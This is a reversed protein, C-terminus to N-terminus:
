PLRRPGDSIEWRPTSAACPLAGREPFGFPPETLGIGTRHCRAIGPWLLTVGRVFAPSTRTALAGGRCYDSRISDLGVKRPSDLMRPATGVTTRVTTTAM